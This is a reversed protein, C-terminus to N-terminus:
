RKNLENVWKMANGRDVFDLALFNPKNQSFVGNQKCTAWVKKLMAPINHIPAPSGVTGFYNFQVLTQTPLKKGRIKCAESPDLTGYMNRRLYTNTNYGYKDNKKNSKNDFIILRKNMAQLTKLQPWRGRYNNPDYTAPTLIYNALGPVSRIAKYTQEPSAYNELELSVVEQPHKDLFTKITKLASSFTKFKKMGTQALGSADCAGHCLLLAGKYPHVDILFHRVGKELQKAISWIQQHYITFGDERNAHANHAGLYTVQDFRKNPDPLEWKDLPELAVLAPDVYKEKIEKGVQEVDKKVGEAAKGVEKVVKKGEREISKGVKEIGKGIDSFIDARVAGNMCLLFAISYIKKM